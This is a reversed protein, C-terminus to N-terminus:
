KKNEDTPNHWGGGLTRYLEINDNILENLADIYTLQANFVGEQASLVDLYTAYGNVLLEYSYEYAKELALYQKYLLEVREKNNEISSLRNSVELGANLVSEKFEIIAIEYEKQAVEKQTRLARSNFIPQTLGGIVGWLLSTPLNFWQDFQTADTSINGSLTLSPYMAAVASNYLHLKSQLTHEAAIIDPRNRLLNAPVGIPFEKFTIQNPDSVERREIKAPAKGMLFCIHNEIESIAQDITPLYAQATLLQSQAQLVAVENVQASEKMTKVTELYEKRNSITEEVYKRQADLTLLEFYNSAITAILQTQIANKTNEQALLQEFQGKKAKSLKGWVDIEWSASIGVTFYPMQSAGIEGKQYSAGAQANLNPALAWKSKKFYSSQQEIRKYAIEMDFNSVLASDILRCLLTDKYFERWHLKAVDFTTDSSEFDRILKETEIEPRQYKIACSTAGAIIALLFILKRM